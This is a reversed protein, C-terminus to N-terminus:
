HSASLPVGGGLSAAALSVRAGEEILLLTRSADEASKGFALLGHNALLVGKTEPYRRLVDLIADISAPTGRRGFAAVPVDHAQGISTLPEYVLPIPKRAVAHATAWPSHTHIIAGIEPRLRYPELHMPLIAAVAPEVVGSVIRGGIDVVAVQDQRVDRLVSPATILIRRPDSALRASANGHGSAQFVGARFLSSVASVLRVKESALTDGGSVDIKEAVGM